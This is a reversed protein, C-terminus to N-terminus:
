IPRRPQTGNPKAWVAKRLPQRHHYRRGGPFKNITLMCNNACGGCRAASAADYTLNLIDDLSLM